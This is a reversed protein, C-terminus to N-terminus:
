LLIPKRPVPPQSPPPACLGPRPSAWYPKRSSSADSSCRHSTHCLLWLFCVFLYFVAHTCSHIVKDLGQCFRAYQLSLEHKNVSTALCLERKELLDWKLSGLSIKTMKAVNVAWSRQQLWVAYFVPFPLHCLFLIIPVVLSNISVNLYQAPDPVARHETHICWLNFHLQFRISKTVQGWSLGSDLHTLGPCDIPISCRKMHSLITIVTLTELLFARMKRLSNRTSYVREICPIVKVFKECQAQLMSWPLGKCGGLHRRPCRWRILWLFILVSNSKTSYGVESM